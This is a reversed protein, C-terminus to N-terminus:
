LFHEGGGKDKVVGLDAVSMLSHEFEVLQLLLVDLQLLTRPDKVQLQWEPKLCLFPLLM